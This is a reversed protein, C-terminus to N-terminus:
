AKSQFNGSHDVDTMLEDDDELETVMSLSVMSNGKLHLM